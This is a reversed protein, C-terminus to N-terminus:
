TLTERRGMRRAIWWVLAAVALIALVIGIPQMVKEISSWHQGAAHGALTLGITWPLNGLLTYLSFTGLDMKAVGAPLSIFARAFPIM